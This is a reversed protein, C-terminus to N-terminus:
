LEGRLKQLWSDFARGHETDLSRESAMIYMAVALGIASAVYINHRFIICTVFCLGFYTIYRAPSAYTPFLPKPNPNVCVGEGNLIHGEACKVCQM